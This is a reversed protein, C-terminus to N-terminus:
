FGSTSRNKGYLRRIQREAEQREFAAMRNVARCYAIMEAREEEPLADFQAPTLGWEHATEVAEFRASSRWPGGVVM